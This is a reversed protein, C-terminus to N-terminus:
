TEENIIDEADATFAYTSAISEDMEHDLAYVDVAVGEDTEHIRVSFKGVSFWGAGEELVYDADKLLVDTTEDKTEPM